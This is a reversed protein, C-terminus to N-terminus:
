KSVRELYDISVSDKVFESGEELSESRMGLIMDRAEKTTRAEVTLCRGRM